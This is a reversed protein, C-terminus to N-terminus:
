GTARTIGLPTLSHGPFVDGLASASIGCRRTLLEGLVDRYDTTGALDGHDLADAALGPWRGHVRGGAVGGGLLLVVNGYGHDLGGSANEGARRGFESLTVLTVRSMLPGLDGAFAALADALRGAQEAMWGEGARGLGAHMDWDDYDLCVSQLGSGHRILRATDSLARGLDTDPYSSLPEGTNRVRDIVDLADLAGHAAAVAPGEVGTHLARVAAAMRAGVWDSQSLSFNELSHMALEPHPGLLSRTVTGGGLQVTSLVSSDARAGAVRDLWGTRLTTGPAARDLEEAARFHSRSGDPTGVAHVAGFTGADWHPQLPALAPHLAFMRDGTPLGTATPVAITPRLLAYAPDGVPALLSLGDMGGRLSLVVLVDGTSAADQAYAVRASLLPGAAVAGAAVGLGKLFTRRSVAAGEPCCASRTM